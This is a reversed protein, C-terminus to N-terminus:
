LGTVSVQDLAYETIYEIRALFEAEAPTIDPNMDIAKKRQLLIKKADTFHFVTDCVLHLAMMWVNEFDHVRMTPVIERLLRHFEKHAALGELGAVKGDVVPAMSAYIEGAHEFVVQPLRYAVIEKMRMFRNSEIASRTMALYRHWATTLETQREALAFATRPVDRQMVAAFLLGNTGGEEIWADYLAGDVVVTSTQADWNRIIWGLEFLAAESNALYNLRYGASAHLSDCRVNWESLSVGSGACPNDKLTGALIYILLLTDADLAISLTQRNGTFFEGHVRELKGAPLGAAWEGVEDDLGPIAVKVIGLLEELTKPEGPVTMASGFGDIASAYSKLHETLTPSRLPAPWKAKEVKYGADADMRIGAVDAQVAKVFAEIVPTVVNKAYSMHSRVANAIDHGLGSRRACYDTYEGRDRAGFDDSLSQIYTPDPTYETPLDGIQKDVGIKVDTQALMMSSALLGVPTGPESVLKLGHSDLVQALLIAERATSINIM